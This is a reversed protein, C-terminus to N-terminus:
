HPYENKIASYSDRIMWRLVSIDVDALRKIYLCSNGTKYPGLRGLQEKYRDEYGGILYVVLQAKRPSFAVAPADGACGSEYVYHYSGFGVISPGYMAPEEGTEERMIEVLRYADARLEDNEVGAIFAMPNADITQTKNVSKAV